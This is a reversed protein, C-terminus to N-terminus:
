HIILVLVVHTIVSASNSGSHYWLARGQQGRIVPHPLSTNHWNWVTECHGTRAWLHRGAGGTWPLAPSQPLPASSLSGHAAGLWELRDSTTVPLSSSNTLSLTHQLCCAPPLSVRMSHISLIWFTNHWYFQHCSWRQCLGCGMGPSDAWHLWSNISISLPPSLQPQPLSTHLGLLNDSQLGSVAAQFKCEQIQSVPGTAWFIQLLTNGNM